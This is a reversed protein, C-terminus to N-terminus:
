RAAAAHTWNRLRGAYDFLELANRTTLREVLAPAEAEPLWGEEVLESLAQALGQRALHAHGPVLEVPMYDGGFTLLKNAPAAMLFEKVFRVAALPNLIWAWCLDVYANPYQKALAIAEDQYPYTMHMIVFPTDPYRSLLPCLDAADHRVRGLPMWGQGAFYGTHLKVPLHQERARELCYHFLHDQIAKHEAPTLLEPTRVRRSFLGEVESAAVPEYDLRRRYAGNNKAAIARPGYTAFCWDIVAHWDALTGVTRGALAGIADLRPVTSLGIFALDQCLLDPYETEQFVEAELSHVQCHHLRAVDRLITRYYGPAIRASLRESISECNGGHLDDEGFLARLSERVARLYGTHRARDYFPALRAWKDRPAIAPDALRALDEAPMGAVALDDCAYHSLLVSFDRGACWSGRAAAPDCRTREELLHEHTDVLLAAQVLGAIDTRISM